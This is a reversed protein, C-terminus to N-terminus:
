ENWSENPPNAIGQALLNIEGMITWIADDYFATAMSTRAAVM